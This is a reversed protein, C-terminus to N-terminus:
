VYDYRLAEIAYKLRNASTEIGILKIIDYISPGSTNGCIALRLPKIVLGFSMEKQKIYLGIEKEFYNEEKEKALELIKLLDSM